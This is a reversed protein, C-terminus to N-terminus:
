DGDRITEGEGAALPKQPRDADAEQSEAAAFTLCRTPCAEVCAPTGGGATLEICLDCKLVEGTVASVRIAGYPCAVVCSRCGVCLGPRILVPSDEDARALAGAPCAAICPADRCQGCEVPVVSAGVPICVVRPAATGGLRVLDFFDDFPSHATACAMACRRCAVCRSASVFIIGKRM